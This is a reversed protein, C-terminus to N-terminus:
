RLVYSLQNEVNGHGSLGLFIKNSAVEVKHIMCNVFSSITIFNLKMRNLKENRYSLMDGQKYSTTGLDDTLKDWMSAVILAM